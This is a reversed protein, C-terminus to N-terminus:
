FETDTAQLLVGNKKDASIKVNQLIPKVDRKAAVSAAIQFSQLFKVRDFSIKM